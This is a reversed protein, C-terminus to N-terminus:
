LYYNARSTVIGSIARQTHDEPSRTLICNDRDRILNTVNREWALGGKPRPRDSEIVDILPVNRECIFNGMGM